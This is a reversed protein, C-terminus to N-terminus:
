IVKYNKAQGLRSRRQYPMEVYEYKQIPEESTGYEWRKLYIYRSSASSNPMESSVLESCVDPMSSSLYDHILDMVERSLEPDEVDGTNAQCGPSHQNKTTKQFDRFM